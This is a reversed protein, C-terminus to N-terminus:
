RQPVDQGTLHYTVGTLKESLDWLRRQAAADHSAPISEVVVPHGTWENWGDPGYYEGGRVRPDAAARVIPRAGAEQSQMLWSTLARLRPNMAVRVFASMDRGFETRANGPHAAVAITAATAGALRRQLEYTFMLNALKAQFYAPGYRYGREFHPDDFNIVGRRHGVSSVTVIRSGPAALLLDLVRGTFAFPGLHNAGLTAEFGDETRGGRPRVGGANNILLDLAPCEDHLRAAAQKVSDLSALDLPVTRVQTGPAVDRIREAAAAAKVPNRCALIVAAGHGALTRATEFGLGTNAGTVVATRGRLDPVSTETWHRSM